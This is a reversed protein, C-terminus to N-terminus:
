TASQDSPTVVTKNADDSKDLESPTALYSHLAGEFDGRLLKMGIFGQGHKLFGFRQSDFYNVVGVREVEQVSEPIRQADARELDRV